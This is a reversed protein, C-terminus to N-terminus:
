ATPSLSPPSDIGTSQRTLLLSTAMAEGSSGFGSAALLKHFAAHVTQFEDPRLAMALDQYSPANPTLSLAAAVTQLAEDTQAIFDAGAEEAEQMALTQRSALEIITANDERNKQAEMLRETAHGVAISLPAMRILKMVHPWARKLAYFTMPPVLYTIGGITVEIGDDDIM